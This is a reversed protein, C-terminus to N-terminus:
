ALPKGDLRVVGLVAQRCSTSDRIVPQDHAIALRYTLGFCRLKKFGHQASTEGVQGGM